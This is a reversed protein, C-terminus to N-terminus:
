LGAAFKSVAEAAVERLRHFNSHKNLFVDAGHALCDDAFSPESHASFIVVFCPASPRSQQEHARIAQLVQLGTLGPMAFDLVTAEPQAGLWLQLAHLGDTAPGLVDAGLEALINAVGKAVVPHDDAVLFRPRRSLKRSM